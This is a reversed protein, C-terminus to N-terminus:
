RWRGAWDSCRAQSRWSSERGSKENEPLFTRGLAANAGLAQFFNETVVRAELREPEGSGTLNTFTPISFTAAFQEFTTNQACYDIYDLSSVSAHNGSNRVAGWAWVLRDPEAFPLPRILVANVVSFIAVNAGIGLALTLVAILTFGPNKLLMRAGYRLDQWLTQM